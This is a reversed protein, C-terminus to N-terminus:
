PQLMGTRIAYRVLEATCHMDLKRMLRTRRSDATKISMCLLAAVEKTSKGEAILQLVQRLRPSLPDLPIKTKDLYGKVVAHSVKSSLYTMGKNVDQIAGVLDTAADSKLVYGTVGARVAALVYQEDSYMTLLVIKTAPLDHRIQKAVDIGNLLPMSLDLVAVEPRKENAKRVADLGDAAEAVVSFGSEELLLKLAQRMIHHDDALLIKLPM